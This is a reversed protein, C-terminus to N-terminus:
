WSTAEFVVEGAKDKITIWSWDDVCGFAIPATGVSYRYIDDSCGGYSASIRFGRWKGVFSFAYKYYSSFRMKAKAFKKDVDERTMRDAM